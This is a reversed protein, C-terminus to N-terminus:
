IDWNTGTYTKRHCLKYVSRYKACISIVFMSNWCAGWLQWTILTNGDSTMCLQLLNNMAYNWFLHTKFEFEVGWSFPFPLQLSLPVLLMDRISFYALIQHSLPCLIYVCPCCSVVQAAGPLLQFINPSFTAVLQLPFLSRLCLQFPLNKFLHTPPYVIYNSPSNTSWDSWGFTEQSSYTIYLFGDADKEQRYVEGLSTNGSAMTKNNIVLFFAQTDSVDVRKRCLSPLLPCHRLM